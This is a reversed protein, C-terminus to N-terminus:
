RNVEVQIPISASPKEEFCYFTITGAATVARSVCEWAEKQAIATALTDSYVPAIHPADTAAIEAISITQSYPASSSWGSASLTATAKVNLAGCSLAEVMYGKSKYVPLTDATYEGEYLAAWYLTCANADQPQIYLKVSAANEPVTCSGIFVGDSETSGFYSTHGDATYGLIANVNGDAKLAFTVTKGLISHIDGVTQKFNDTTSGTRQVKVSGDAVSVTLLGMDNEWRDITYGSGTYSTKGRQNVPDRFDSNDLLNAPAAQAAAANVYMKSAYYTQEDVDELADELQRILATAQSNIGATDVQAVADAMIGCCTVDLRLDTIKGAVIATASPERRVRYLHIEHVAETRTVEPAKPSNAATGKKAILETSNKNADFQLVVADIRPYNTDPLGMNLATQEKMAVAVGNFKSLKMWALGADITITNDAGTVTAAFDDGAYIGTSRTSNYIAVNEASYDINNLPYTVISM